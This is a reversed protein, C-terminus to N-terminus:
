MIQCNKPKKKKPPDTPNLLNLPPTTEREEKKKKKQNFWLKYEKVYNTFEKQILPENSFFNKIVSNNKLNNNFIFFFCSEKLELLNEKVSHNLLAQINQKDIKKLLIKEIKSELLNNSLGFYDSIGFLSFYVDLQLDDKIEDTYLFHIFQELAFPESGSMDQVQNSQDNSSFLMGRFLESRAILITKHAKIEHEQCLITFDKTENQQYLKEFVTGLKTKGFNLSGNCLNVLENLELKEALKQLKENKDQYICEFKNFYLYEMLSIITDYDELKLILIFNKENFKNPLFRASVIDRHFEIFKSDMTDIQMDCFEQRKFFNEMDSYLNYEFQYIFADEFAQSNLSFESKGTTNSTVGFFVFLKSDAIVASHDDRPSPTVGERPFIEEWYNDIYNYIYINGYTRVGRETGGFVVMQDYKNNASHSERKGPIIGNENGVVKEFKNTEFDFRNFTNVTGGDLGGYVFMSNGYVVATSSGIGRFNLDIQIKNWSLTLFNLAFLLAESYTPGFIYMQDKHVCATHYTQPRPSDGTTKIEEWEGTKFRFKFVNNSYYRETEGGFVWMFEDYVVATHAARRGIVQGCQDVEQWTGLEIDYVYLEDCLEDKVSNGGHIWVKNEYLVHAPRFRPTPTKINTLQISKWKKESELDLM